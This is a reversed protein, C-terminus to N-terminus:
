NLHKVAVAIKSTADGARLSRLHRGPTNGVMLVFLHSFRSPSLGASIALQRVTLRVHVNAALFKLATDIRADHRIPVGEDSRLRGHCHIHQVLAVRALRSTRQSSRFRDRAGQLAAHDASRVAADFDSAVQRLEGLAVAYAKLAKTCIGCATKRGM